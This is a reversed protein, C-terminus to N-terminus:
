RRGWGKAEVCAMALAVAVEDKASSGRVIGEITACAHEREEAGGETLAAAIEAAQPARGADM